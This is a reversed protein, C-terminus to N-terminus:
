DLSALWAAELAQLDLGKLAVDVALSRDHTTRMGNVYRGLVQEWGPQWGEPKRRAEPLTRLFWVFSWGQAYVEQVGYLGADGGSYGPGLWKLLEPFPVYSRSRALERTADLRLPNPKRVLRGAQLEFGGYYDEHGHLMWGHPWPLGVARVWHAKFQLGALAPWRWSGTERRTVALTPM